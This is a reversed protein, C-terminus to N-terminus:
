MILCLLTIHKFTQLEFYRNHLMYILDRNYAPNYHDHPPHLLLHHMVHRPPNLAPSFLMHHMFNPHTVRTNPVDCFRRLDIVLGVLDQLPADRGGLFKAAATDTAPESPLAATPLAFHNPLHNM